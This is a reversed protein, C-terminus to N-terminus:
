GGASPSWSPRTTPTPTPSSSASPPPTGITWVACVGPESASRRAIEVGDTTRAIFTGHSCWDYNAIDAMGGSWGRAGAPQITAQGDTMKVVTESGGNADQHVIVLSAGTYNYVPMSMTRGADCGIVVLPVLLALLALWVRWSRVGQSVESSGHDLWRSRGAIRRQIATANM